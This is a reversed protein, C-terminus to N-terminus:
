VMRKDTRGIFFSVLIDVADYKVYCNIAGNKDVGQKVDLDIIGDQFQQPSKNSTPSLADKQFKGYLTQRQFYLQNQFQALVSASTDTLTLRIKNIWFMDSSLADVLSGYSVSQCRLIVFAAYSTGGVSANYTLVMDGKALLALATADPVGFRLVPLAGPRGYVFPLDYAWGGNLPFQGQSAVFGGMGDSQAFMFAALKTKLAANLASAAIETYAGAAVTFYKTLVNVDFQSEFPQNDLGPGVKLKAGAAGTPIEADAHDYNSVRNNLKDLMQKEVTNM